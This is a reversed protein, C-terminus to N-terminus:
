RKLNYITRGNPPSTIVLRTRTFWVGFGHYPQAYSSCAVGPTKFRPAGSAYANVCILDNGSFYATDGVTVQMSQTPTGDHGALGSTAAVAFTVASTVACAATTRLM